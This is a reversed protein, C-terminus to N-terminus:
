YLMVKKQFHRSSLKRVTQPEFHNPTNWELSTCAHTHTYECVYAGVKVIYRLMIHVLLLTEELFYALKKVLTFNQFSKKEGLHRKVM